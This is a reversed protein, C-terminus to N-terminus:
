PVAICMTGCDSAVGSPDQVVGGAAHLLWNFPPPAFIQWPNASFAAHEHASLARQWLILLSMQNQLCVGASQQGIKTPGSWATGVQGTAATGQSVGDRYWQVSGAGTGSASAAYLHWNGDVVGNNSYAWSGQSTWLSLNGTTQGSTNIGWGFGQYPSTSNYNWLIFQYSAAPPPNGLSAVTIPGAFNVGLVQGANYALYADTSSGGFNGSWGYPSSAWAYNTVTPLAGCVREAPPGCGESFVWCASIGQALPHQWNIPTGPPPKTQWVSGIM